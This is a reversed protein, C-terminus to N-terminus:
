TLTALIKQMEALQDEVLQKRELFLQYRQPVTPAGELCWDIYQKIQKLPMGTRKLCEITNLYILDRHTFIRQGNAKRQVCPLLGEKDYYRLTHVSLNMKKALEGIKYEM